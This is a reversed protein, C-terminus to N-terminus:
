AAHSPRPPIERGQIMLARIQKARQIIFQPVGASTAVQDALSSEGIGDMIKFEYIISSKSLDRTVRFTKYLIYDSYAQLHDVLRTFHTSIMVHPCCSGRKALYAVLGKLLHFGDYAQTGKGFEDIAIFSRTTARALAYNIQNLDTAFTSLGTSISNASQMRTLIADVIPIRAYSAPVFCGIHAMYIILCATKMHTTKGCSNPGTLIMVRSKRETDDKFFSINNPVICQKECHLPHLADRIDIEDSGSTNFEPRVFGRQSSVLSFALLCDLQGCLEMLRLITESHQLIETQLEIIVKEQLDILDCTIDGADKDLEEMRPTKFYVQAETTIMVDFEKNLRLNAVEATSSFEISELFGVRPIYLVNCRKRLLEKYKATEEIAVADCFINLNKVVDRKNDVSKDINDCIQLQKEKKSAEFDVVNIISDVTQRLSPVDLSMLRSLIEIEDCNNARILDIIAMFAWLSKYLVSLDKYNGVAHVIKALINNLPVVNKLQVVLQDLFLKNEPRLFYDITEYRHHLEGLEVLPWMMITNLTRKGQLSHCKNLVDYLSSNLNVSPRPFIHLSVLTNTDISLVPGPDMYQVEIIPMSDLFKDIASISRIACVDTSKNIKSFVVLSREQAEKLGRVGMWDSDILKQEGQSISYWSNPVVALIFEADITEDSAVSCGRTLDMMKFRFRKEIYAILQKQASSVVVVDPGTKQIIIEMGKYPDGPDRRDAVLYLTSCQYISCGCRSAATCISMIKRDDLETTSFGPDDSRSLSISTAGNTSTDM